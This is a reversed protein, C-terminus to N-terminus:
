ARKAKEMRKYERTSRWTNYALVVFLQYVFKHDCVPCQAQQLTEQDIGAGGDHKIIIKAKCHPCTAPQRYAGKVEIAEGV